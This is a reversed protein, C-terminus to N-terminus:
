IVFSNDRFNRLITSQNVIADSVLSSSPSNNSPSDTSNISSTLEVPKDSPDYSADMNIFVFASGVTLIGTESM